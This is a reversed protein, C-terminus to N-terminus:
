CRIKRDTRRGPDEERTRPIRALNGDPSSPIELKRARGARGIRVVLSESWFSRDKGRASAHSQIRALIQHPNAQKAAISFRTLDSLRLAISPTLSAGSAAAAPFVL